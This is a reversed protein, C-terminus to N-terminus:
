FVLRTVGDGAKIFSCHSVMVMLSLVLLRWLGIRDPSRSAEGSIALVAKKLTLLKWGHLAPKHLKFLDPSVWSKPVARVEAWYM